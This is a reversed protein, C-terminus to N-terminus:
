SVVDLCSSDLLVDMSSLRDLEIGDAISDLEVLRGDTVNPEDKDYPFILQRGVDSNNASVSEETEDDWEIDDDLELDYSELSDVVEEGFSSVTLNPDMDERMDVFSIVQMRTQKPAKSSSDFEPPEHVSKTSEDMAQSSSAATDGRVMGAMNQPTVKAMKASSGAEEFQELEHKGAQPTDPAKAVFPTPPDPGAEDPTYPVTATLIPPPVANEVAFVPTAVPALIRKAHVMTHGLAAYNCDWPCTTLDGYYQVDFGTPLRRISRTVFVGDAIALIHTDNQITKGLWIGPRWQPKGKLETKMFGLVREGYRALKGTYMRGSCLEFPTSGNTVSFRNHIWCAHLVAWASVPHSCGFIVHGECCEKEISSVLVNAQARIIKVTVEAGGNSQHDGVPAPESHTIIGLNRCTKKVADLIALTSPECDCRLGIEKHNTQMIFRVVETM